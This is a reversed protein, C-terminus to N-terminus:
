TVLDRNGESECDFNWTPPIQYQGPQPTCASSCSPRTIHGCHPRLMFSNRYSRMSSWGCAQPQYGLLASCAVHSSACAQACVNPPEPLATQLLSAHPLSDRLSPIDISRTVLATSLTDPTIEHFPSCITKALHSAPSFPMQDITQHLGFPSCLRLV